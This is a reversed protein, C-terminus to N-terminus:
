PNNEYGGGLLMFLTKLAFYSNCLTSIGLYPSRRFGGDDNQLNTIFQIHKKADDIKVNLLKLTAVAFYTTEIYSPRSNPVSAYGGDDTRCKHIFLPTNRLKSLDYGGYSLAVVAHYTAAIDSRGIGFGGTKNEPLLWSVDSEEINKGLIHLTKSAQYALKFPSNTIDYDASFFEGGFTEKFIKFERLTAFLQKTFALNKPLTGLLKLSKIAYFAVGVSDYMGDPRQVDLLYRITRAKSPIEENLLSLIALAYFTESISSPFEVGYIPYSFSYGGDSNLRCKVFHTLKKSDILSDFHM